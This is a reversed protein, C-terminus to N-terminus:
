IFLKKHLTTRLPKAVAIVILLLSLFGRAMRNRGCFLDYQMHSLATLSQRDHRMEVEFTEM